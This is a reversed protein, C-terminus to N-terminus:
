RAQQKFWAAVRDTEAPEATLLIRAFRGSTEVELVSEATPRRVGRAGRLYWLETKGKRRYRGAYLRKPVATGAFRWAGGPDLYSAHYRVAVVEAREVVVRGIMAAWREIGEFEITLAGNTTLRMADDQRM